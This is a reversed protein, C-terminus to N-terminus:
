LTSSPKHRRSLIARIRMGIAGGNAMNEWEM